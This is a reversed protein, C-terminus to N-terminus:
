LVVVMHVGVNSREDFLSLVGDLAYCVGGGLVVVDWDLKYLLLLLRVVVVVGVVVWLPTNDHL